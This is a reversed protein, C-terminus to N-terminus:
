EKHIVYHYIALSGAGILGINEVPISSRRVMNGDSVPLVHQITNLLGDFVRQNQFVRGCLVVEEVSVVHLTNVVATGLIKAADDLLTRISKENDMRLLQNFTIEQSAFLEPAALRAKDVIFQEGTYLEVCGRNGCWCTPGNIDVSMHGVEVHGLHSPEGGLILGGGVGVDAYLLLSESVHKSDGFLKEALAMNQVNNGVQVPVGTTEHVALALDSGLWNQYPRPELMFPVNGVSPGYYGVGIGMISNRYATSSLFGEIHELLVELSPSSLAVDRRELITGRLDMVACSLKNRAVHIAAVCHSKPMIDLFIERRGVSSVTPRNTTETLIGEQLLEGTLNTITGPTLQTLRSIEKRSIPGFEYVIKLVLSINHNKTRNM